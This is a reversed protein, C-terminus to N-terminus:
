HHGCACPKGKLLSGHPNPEAPRSGKGSLLPLGDQAPHQAPSCLKGEGESQSCLSTGSLLACVGGAM